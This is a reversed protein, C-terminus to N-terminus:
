SWRLIFYTAAERTNFKLGVGREIPNYTNDPTGNAYCYYCNYEELLIKRLYDSLETTRLLPLTTKRIYHNSFRSYILNISGDNERIVLQHSDLSLM